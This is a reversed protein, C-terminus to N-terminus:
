TCNVGALDFTKGVIAPNTAHEPAYQTSNGVCTAHTVCLYQENDPASVEHM